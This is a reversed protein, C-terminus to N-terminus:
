FAVPTPSAADNTTGDGIEGFNNQGWCEVVGRQGGSCAHTEGASIGLLGPAIAVDVPTNSSLSMGNGLQGFFGSGWCSATTGATALLACTYGGGATIFTPRARLGAPGAKPNLSGVNTGDGFAGDENSGWCLIGTTGNTVIACTHRSGASVQQVIGPITINVAAAAVTLQNGDGLQGFTNDGWCNLVTGAARIVCTHFQGTAVSVPDNINPVGVPGGDGLGGYGLQGRTGGGWCVIAKDSNRITCTHTEGSAIAVAPGGVGATVPTPVSQPGAGIGIQQFQNRGWCKVSSDSLLACRFDGGATVDLPVIGPAAGLMVTRPTPSGGVTGDGLQGFTNDGWCKVTQDIIACSHHTGAAVHQVPGAGSNSGGTGTTGGTGTMGGTGAMGGTGTMGGTGAMGGGTGGTPFDISVNGAGARHLVLTVDATVGGALTVQAPDSVWNPVTMPVVASCVQSFGDGTFTDTGLPLGSLTFVTSAGPTVDLLRVETRTGVVTVRLCNVDPPAQTIAISATGVDDKTASSRNSCGVGAVVLVALTCVYWRTTKM